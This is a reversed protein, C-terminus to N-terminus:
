RERDGGGVARLHPELERLLPLAADKESLRPAELPWEIGIEPDNWRVGIEDGPRYLATCKYFVEATATLACFGHAFGPPIWLQLLNDATLTAGAWRGFTASGPRLDVAVDFVAGALVRVLKGQPHELQAHLGRLVGGVSRSQNDQVFAGDVGLRAFAESQYSEFFRGREDEFVTPEILLLGDLDLPRGKM